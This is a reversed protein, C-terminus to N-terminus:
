IAQENFQCDEQNIRVRKPRMHRAKFEKLDTLEKKEQESEMKELRRREYRDMDVCVRALCNSAYESKSNLLSDKSNQIRLAEAVQRSLCDRYSGLVSFRFAPCENDEGHKTM